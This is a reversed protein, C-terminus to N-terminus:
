ALLYFSSIMLQKSSVTKREPSSNGSFFFSLLSVVKVASALFNLDHASGCDFYAIRSCGHQQRYFAEHWEGNNPNLCLTVLLIQSTTPSV